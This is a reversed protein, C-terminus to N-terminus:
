FDLLYKQKREQFQIRAISKLNIRDLGSLWQFCRGDLSIQQRNLNFCMCPSKKHRDIWNQQVWVCSISSKITTHVMNLVMICTTFRTCKHIVEMAMHIRHNSKHIFQSHFYYMTLSCSKNTNIQFSNFFYSSLLKSTKHCCKM